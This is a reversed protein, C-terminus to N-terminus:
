ERGWTTEIMNRVEAGVADMSARARDYTSRTIESRDLEYISQKLMTADAVATSKFSTATLVMDSFLTRLFSVLQQSPGDTPEDRTVLFKFHDYHLEAGHETIVKMYSSVLEMFLATSSLDMMSPTLPVLLSTAAAMGTLTLIDLEPPSDILVIDFQDQVQGIADRLRTHFGAITRAEMKFESLILQAPAISLGPLFTPRIVEAMPCPDQATIADYITRSGFEAQPDIGCMGTLSGQPDLDILLVRFGHLALYHAIHATATTKSCGGKFNMLQWVQLNEGEKRWPSYKGPVRAKAELIQRYEWLEEATYLRRGGRNNATDPLTGDNHCKRLFPPSTNLLEAAEPAPFLRMTKTHDPAFAQLLHGRVASKLRQSVELALDAPADAEIPAMLDM